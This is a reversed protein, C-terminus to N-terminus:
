RKRAFGIAGVGVLICALALVATWTLPEKLVAVALGVGVVPTLYNATSVFTPGTREFLKFFLILGIGTSVLGLTVTALLSAASPEIAWPREIALSAPALVTMAGLLVASGAAGLSLGRTARAFINTLGYSFAAGLVAAFGALSRGIGSLAVPGVLMVIGSFGLLLGLIAMSSLRESRLFAQSLLATFIPVAGIAIATVSADIRQQGFAILFPPLIYGFLSLPLLARWTAFQRPLTARSMWALYLLPLLASAIRVAAITLPPMTAVALKILLNSSGWALALLGLLVFNRATGSM